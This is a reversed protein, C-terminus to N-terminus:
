YGILRPAGPFSTWGQAPRANLRIRQRDPPPRLAARTDPDLGQGDLLRRISSAVVRALDPVVFHTTTLAPRPAAGPPHNGTGVVAIDRPVDIGADRLQHIPLIAVQDNNAYVADPRHAPDRWRSVAPATSAASLQCDVREVPV